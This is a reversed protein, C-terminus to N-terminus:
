SLCYKTGRGNGRCEVYGKEILSNLLRITKAKSFGIYAAAESSALLSRMKLANIIKEEDATVEYTYKLVPLIVSIVNETIHFQPKLTAEEYSEMIRRIGTGFMEIYHMRFFVNGLVPNRLCSIEGNLYEEETIGKPLGGPSKIEIRDKFLSIRVHSNMDWNRHVLANAVAERFAAEPIFEKTKREIGTIEECQYYRKYEEMAKDFQKLVSEKEITVRDMIESISNGFRAIDVGYFSNKDALLAAANNYERSETYLGLTRLIDETLEKIGMKEQMKKELLRFSLEKEGCSLSEFCLNSGNLILKKLEAQDVEISATDSRRYAKGKYMYPTYEGKHVTLKIINGSEIQLEFDPKPSISDNIRNEIDLCVKDPHDVGCTKGEDDVGFLIEGDNFNAFASVTKLFTNSVESKFELYKHERM